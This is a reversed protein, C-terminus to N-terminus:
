RKFEPLGYARSVENYEEILEQPNPCDAKIFQKYRVNRIGNGITRDAHETDAKFAKGYYEAAKIYYPMSLEEGITYQRKDFYATEILNGKNYWIRGLSSNIEVNTSDIAYAKELYKLAEDTDGQLEVLTGKLSLCSANDPDAKLLDDIVIAAADYDKSELYINMLNQAFWPDEPLMKIGEILTNEYLTSDGTALYQRCLEQMVFDQEYGSYRMEKLEHIATVHDEALVSTLARFYKAHNVISDGDFLALEAKARPNAETLDSVLKSDIATIFLDWCSHSKKWDKKEYADAANVRFGGTATFLPWAKKQISALAKRNAKVNSNQAYMDYVKMYNYFSEYSSNYLVKDDIKEKKAPKNREYNYCYYEVDALAYLVEAENDKYLSNKKAKDIEKRANAFNPKSPDSAFTRANKLNVTLERQAAKTDAKASEQAVALSTISIIIINAVITLLKKM